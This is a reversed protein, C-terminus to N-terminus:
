GCKTLTWPLHLYIHWVHIRPNLIQWSSYPIWRSSHWGFCIDFLWRGEVLQHYEARCSCPQRFFFLFMQFLLYIWSESLDAWGTWRCDYAFGILVTYSSMPICANSCFWDQFGQQLVLTCNTQSLQWMRYNQLVDAFPRETKLSWVKESVSCLCGQLKNNFTYNHICYVSISM